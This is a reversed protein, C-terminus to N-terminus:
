EAVPIYTFGGHAPDAACWEINWALSTCGALRTIIRREGGYTVEAVDYLEDKGGFRATWREIVQGLPEATRHFVRSGAHDPRARNTAICTVIVVRM